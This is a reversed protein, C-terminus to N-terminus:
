GWRWFRQWPSLSKEMMWLLPDLIGWPRAESSLRNGQPPAGLASVMTYEVSRFEERTMNMFQLAQLGERTFQRLEESTRRLRALYDHLRALHDLSGGALDYRLHDWDALREGLDDGKTYVVVLHQRKPDGQLDNRLGQVYVQLLRHMEEGPEEGVDQLSILFMVTQSRRVFGAHTVLQSAREFAEGSTDYFLLHRSHYRPLNRARVITPRPFNKPTSEPLEGRKLRAKNENVTDLSPEDLAHTYFNPWLQALEDFVDFLSALYVTKGHARFGVASVVVPPCQRYNQVYM